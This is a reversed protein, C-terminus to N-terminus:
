AVTDVRLARQYRWGRRREQSGSVTDKMGSADNLTELFGGCELLTAACHMDKRQNEQSLFLEEVVFGGAIPLAVPEASCKDAFMTRSLTRWRERRRACVLALVAGATPPKDPACANEDPRHLMIDHPFLM